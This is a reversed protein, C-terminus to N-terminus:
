DKTLYVGVEKARCNPIMALLEVGEPTALMSLRGHRTGEYSRVELRRLYAGFELVAWGHAGGSKTTFRRSKLADKVGVLFPDLTGVDLETLHGGLRQIANTEADVPKASSSIKLLTFRRDREVSVEVRIYDNMRSRAEWMKALTSVDFSELYNDVMNAVHMTMLESHGVTELVESPVAFECAIWEDGCLVGRDLRDRLFTLESDHSAALLLRIVGLRFREIVRRRLTLWDVFGLAETQGTKGPAQMISTLRSAYMELDELAALGSEAFWRDIHRNGGEGVEKSLIQFRRLSNWLPTVIAKAAAHGFLQVFDYFQGSLKRDEIDQREQDAILLAAIADSQARIICLAQIRQKPTLQLTSSIQAIMIPPNDNSLSYPIPILFMSRLGLAHEEIHSRLLRALPKVNLPKSVFERASKRYADVLEHMESADLERSYWFRWDSIYM